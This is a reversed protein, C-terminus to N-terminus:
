GCAEAFLQDYANIMEALSYIKKAKHQNLAGIRNAVDPTKILELLSRKLTEADKGTVYPRNQEAVMSAVDGVNTSAIPLGCAMAEIVSLPMQESDSSLAFIDFIPYLHEPNPLNGTFIVNNKRCVRDALMTLAARGVGDGIIVLQSDPNQDEVASFAEILRGINKEPRLGAVTGIIKKNIDIGLSKALDSKEPCIFRNIDIGNPIFRLKTRDIHWHNQAHKELVMSPVVVARCGRYILRRLRRRAPIEAAVEDSTFGDQIHIMPCIPFFRNAMAWEIAGWNYTVLLDPRENKLIRRCAFAAKLTNGKKILSAGGGLPALGDILKLAEYNGDMAYVSHEIATKTQAMYEAFRRQTGGVELSSFVHLIKKAAQSM